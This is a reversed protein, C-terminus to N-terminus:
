VHVFLTGDSQPYIALYNLLVAQASKPVQRALTSPCAEVLHTQKVCCVVTNIQVSPSSPNKIFCTSSRPPATYCTQKWHCSTWMPPPLLLLNKLSSHLVTPSLPRLTSLFVYASAHSLMQLKTREEQSLPPQSTSKYQAQRFIPCRSWSQTVPPKTAPFFSERTM